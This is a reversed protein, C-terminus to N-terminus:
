LPALNIARVSVIYEVQLWYISSFGVSYPFSRKSFSDVELIENCAEGSPGPLGGEGIPQPSSGRGM